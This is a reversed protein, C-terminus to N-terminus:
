KSINQIELSNPRLKQFVRDLCTPSHCIIACIHKGRCGTVSEWNRNHPAICFDVGWFLLSLRVSGSVLIAGGHPQQNELHKFVQTRLRRSPAAAGVAVQGMHRPGSCIFPGGALSLFRGPCPHSATFIPTTDFNTLVALTSTGGNERHVLIAYRMYSGHYIPM